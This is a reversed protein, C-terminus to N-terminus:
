SVAGPRGGALAREDQRMGKASLGDTEGEVRKVRFPRRAAGKESFNYRHTPGQKSSKRKAFSLTSRPWPIM